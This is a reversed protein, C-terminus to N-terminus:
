YSIKQKVQKQKFEDSAWAALIVSELISIDVGARIAKYGFGGNTGIARHEANTASQRLSPQGMHCLQKGEILPEFAACAAIVDTVKPLYYVKVKADKLADALATQGNAGDIVVKRPASRIIFDTIWAFGSRTDRRDVTEVFTKGDKTKIAISVAVSDASFKVGVFMPSAFEPLADLKLADWENATIASHLNYQLWLGLRQINFDIDDNGIEDAIKRETLHAGLSPNTSYWAEIDQCDTMDDVSWEEWAANRVSGALVASRLKVFVTGSSVPTPPTGLFITQPNEADSVM